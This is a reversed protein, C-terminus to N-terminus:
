EARAAAVFANPSASKVEDRLGNGHTRSRHFTVISIEVRPLGAQRFQPSRVLRSFNLLNKAPGTVTTAEIVSLLKITPSM